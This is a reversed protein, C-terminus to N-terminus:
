KKFKSNQTDKVAQRLKLLNLYSKSGFKTIILIPLLMDIYLYPKESSDDNELVKELKTHFESSLSIAKKYQKESLYHFNILIHELRGMLLNIIEIMPLEEMAVSTLLQNETVEIYNNLHESIMKIKKFEFSYKVLNELLPEWNNERIAKELDFEKKEMISDFNKSLRYYKRKINGPQIEDDKTYSELLGLRILDRTCRSIHAKSKGLHYSIETLSLENYIKLLILIRLDLENRFIDVLHRKPDVRKIIKVFSMFLDQVDKKNTASIEISGILSRSSALKNAHEISIKRKEQLDVKNGVMLIPISVSKKTKRFTKIWKDLNKISSKNTIDYVFIGGAAGQIYDKYLVKFKEKGTLEWIQLKVESGDIVLTDHYFSVGITEKPPVKVSENSIFALEKFCQSNLTSKGVGGEGFVFIKYVQPKRM